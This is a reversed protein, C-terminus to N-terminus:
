VHQLNFLLCGNINSINVKLFQNSIGHSGYEVAISSRFFSFAGKKRDCILKM